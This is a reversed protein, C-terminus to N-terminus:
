KRKEKQELSTLILKYLGYFTAALFGLFLYGPYFMLMYLFGFLGSLISTAILLAKLKINM